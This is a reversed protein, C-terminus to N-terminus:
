IEIVSNTTTTPIANFLYSSTTTTCITNFLYSNITTTCAYVSYIDGLSTRSNGYYHCLCATPLSVLWTFLHVGKECSEGAVQERSASSQSTIDINVSVRVAESNHLAANHTITGFHSMWNNLPVVKYVGAKIM